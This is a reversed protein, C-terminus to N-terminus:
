GNKDSKGVLALIQVIYKNGGKDSAYFSRQSQLSLSPKGSFTVAGRSILSQMFSDWPFQPGPDIKFAAIQDHGIIHNRDLPVSYRSALDSVLTLLSNIQAESYSEWKKGYASFSNQCYLTSQFHVDTCADGLNVLEIGIAKPNFGEICCSGVPNNNYSQCSPVLLGNSVCNSPCTPKESKTEPDICGAHQAVDDDPVFADKYPTPNNNVSYITGDRDIVYHISLGRTSIAQIAGFADVGETDHIVIYTVKRKGLNLSSLIGSSQVTSLAWATKLTEDGASMIALKEGYVNSITNQSDGYSQQAPDFKFVNVEAYYPAPSKGSPDESAFNLHCSDIFNKQFASSFVNDNLYGKSTICDAIQNGLARGEVIRADLPYGYFSYAM